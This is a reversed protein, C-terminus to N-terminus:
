ATRVCCRVHISASRRTCPRVRPSLGGLLGLMMLALTAPESAPAPVPSGWNFNRSDDDYGEGVVYSYCDNYNICHTTNGNV